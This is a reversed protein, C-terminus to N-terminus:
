GRKEAEIVCVPSKTQVVRTLHFGSREFLRGFEEETRERGGPLMMMELDLWKALHPENGGALVGEVLIVKAKGKAARYCNKLITMARTM